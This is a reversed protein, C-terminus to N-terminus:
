RQTGPAPASPGTRGGAPHDYVPARRRWLRLAQWHILATVRLTVLPDVALMRALSGATVPLRALQLHADFSRRGGRWNELALALRDGPPALTCRYRMDPPLFPSVHFAKGFEFRLAGNQLARGGALVYPHMERWPMNSVELVVAEIQTGSADFCYYASLPNFCYGFYRLHTLLRIPGAPRFGAEREVLDRISEDLPPLPQGAADPPRYHDARRFWAPAPRRASWLWYPDFLRPLEALDLYMMYIHYRFDNRVRGFRRHSVQGRYICSNM